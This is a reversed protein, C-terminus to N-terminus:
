HFQLGKKCLCLRAKRRM